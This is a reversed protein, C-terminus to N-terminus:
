FQAPVVSSNMIHFFTTLVFIRVYGQIPTLLIYALYQIYIQDLPYLLDYSAWTPSFVVEPHSHPKKRRERGTERRAGGEGPQLLEEEGQGGAQQSHRTLSQLCSGGRPTQVTCMAVWLRPLFLLWVLAPGTVLCHASLDPTTM